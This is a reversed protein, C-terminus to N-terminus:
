GPCGDVVKGLELTLDAIIHTGFVIDLAPLGLDANGSM